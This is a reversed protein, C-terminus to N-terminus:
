LVPADVMCAFSKFLNLRYYWLPFNYMGEKIKSDLLIPNGNFHRITGEEDFEVQLFGLYKGHMYATVVLTTHAPDIDSQVITPYLGVPIDNTPPTGLTHSLLLATM